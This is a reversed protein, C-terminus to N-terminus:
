SQLRDRPSFHTRIPVVPFLARLFRGDLVTPSISLCTPRNAFEVQCMIHEVDWSTTAQMSSVKSAGPLCVMGALRECCWVCAPRIKPSVLPVFVYSTTLSLERVFCDRHSSAGGRLIGYRGRTDAYRRVRRIDDLLLRSQSQPLTSHSSASPHPAFM